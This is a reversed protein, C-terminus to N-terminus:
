DIRLLKELENIEDKGLQGMETSKSFLELLRLRYADDRGDWDIFLKIIESPRAWYGKRVYKIVRYTSSIPCHINKLRLLRRSEDHMFDADVFGEYDDHTLPKPRLAARIVTFDFSALVHELGGTTVVAGKEMPRILQIPVHSAYKDSPKHEDEISPQEYTIAMENDNSIKLGDKEFVAKLADFVEMSGCYIDLDGPPLPKKHPSCCYRAYGGCIWSGPHEELLDLLQDIETLGRRIRVTVFSFEGMNM